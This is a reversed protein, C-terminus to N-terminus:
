ESNELSFTDILHAHISLFLKIILFQSVLKLLKCLEFGELHTLLGLFWPFLDLELWSTHWLIGEQKPSASKNTRNLGEALKVLGVWM